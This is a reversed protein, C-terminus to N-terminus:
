DINDIIKQMRNMIENKSIDEALMNKVGTLSSKLQQKKERLKLANEFFSLQSEMKVIYDRVGQRTIGINEAIESLSFDEDYYLAAISRQKDSLLPTYIDYLHVMEIKM